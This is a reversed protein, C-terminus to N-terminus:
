WELIERAHPWWGDLSDKLLWWEDLGMGSKALGLLTPIWAMPSDPSFWWELLAITDEVTYGEGLNFCEPEIRVPLASSFPKRRQPDHVRLGRLRIARDLLDMGLCTGGVTAIRFIFWWVSRLAADLILPVLHRPDLVNLIAVLNARCPADDRPLPYSLVAVAM